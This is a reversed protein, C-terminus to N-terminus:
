YYRPYAAYYPYRYPYRYGYGYWRVPQVTVKKRDAPTYVASRVPADAASIGVTSPNVTTQVALKIPVDTQAVAQHATLSALVAIAVVSGISFWGTMRNSM